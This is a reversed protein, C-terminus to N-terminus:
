RGVKYENPELFASLEPCGKNIRCRIAGQRDTRWIRAGASQLSELVIDAPHGYNNPGVSIVAHEPKLAQTFEEQTTKGSGHHAVKLVQAPTIYDTLRREMEITADATFLVCHRHEDSPESAAYILSIILSRNNEDEAGRWEEGLPFIDSPVGEMIVELRYSGLRLISGQKLEIFQPGPGDPLPIKDRSLASCGVARLRGARLLTELGGSHDKDAHTLILLDVFERGLSNLAPELVFDAAEPRGADIMVLPGNKVDIMIADGQGVDLFWIDLDPGHSDRIAVIAGATLLFVIAASLMKLRLKEKAKAVVYLLLLLGPYFWLLSASYILYGQSAAPLTRSVRLMLELIPELAAFLLATLPRLNLLMFPLAFVSGLLVAMLLPMAMLNIVASLLSIRASFLVSWPLILVQAVTHIVVNNAILLVIRHLLILIYLAVHRIRSLQRKLAYTHSRYLARSKGYLLRQGPPPFGLCEAITSLLTGSLNACKRYMGPVFLAIGLGMIGSMAFSFNFILFPDFCLMAIIVAMLCNIRHTYIGMLTLFRMLIIVLVSRTVSPAWGTLAAFLLLLLAQFIHRRKQTGAVRELPLLANLVIGVHTGSAVLLHALGALRFSEREAREVGVASGLFITGWLRDAPTSLHKGAEELLGSRLTDFLQTMRQGVTYRVPKNWQRINITDAKIFTLRAFMYRKEDFGGPNRAGRIFDPELILTLVDGVVPLIEGDLGMSGTFRKWLNYRLRIRARVGSSIEEILLTSTGGGAVLKNDTSIVRATVDGRRWESMALASRSKQISLPICLRLSTSIIFIVSIVVPIIGVTKRLFLLLAVASGLTIVLIEWRPLQVTLVSVLVGAILPITLPYNRINKRFVLRM